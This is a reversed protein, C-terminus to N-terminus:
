VLLPHAPAAARNTLRDLLEAFRKAAPYAAFQRAVRQAAERTRDDALMERTVARVRAPNAWEARLTRGAGAESVYHMTLHQDMNSPIGLVPKGAALATYATASGGNGIVLDARACVEQSPLFEAWRVNGPVSKPRTRGSMSTVVTVPLEALGELIAPLREAAGSSGMCVYVLPRNTPIAEWWDPLPAPFSWTIPGLYHHHAPRDFTPVLEPVDAYLAHDADSYVRRHDWGLTPLGFEKRLRNMPRTHHAFAFPRALHFLPNALRPGLLRSAPVEPVCYRQRAYPSWYANCIIAYPIRTLAASVSLSFRLDGVLIDPQVREILRLDDHVYARLTDLEFMRKGTALARLVEGSPLSYLPWRTWPRDELLHHYEPACAFHIDYVAPDLGGALVFPRSFHCLTAVEAVFLVRPRRTSRSPFM